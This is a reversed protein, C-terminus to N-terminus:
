RASSSRSAKPGKLASKTGWWFSWRIGFYYLVTVVGLVVMFILLWNGSSLMSLLAKGEGSLALVPVGLLLSVIWVGLLGQAAFSKTEEATPLRSEDKVFKSAAFFGSGLVVATSLGAGSKLKFAVAVIAAIVTLAAFILTFYRSYKKLVSERNQQLGVLRAARGPTNERLKLFRQM